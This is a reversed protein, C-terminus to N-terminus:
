VSPVLANGAAACNQVYIGVATCSCYLKSAPCCCANRLALTSQVDNTPALCANMVSCTACRIDPSSPSCAICGASRLRPPRWMVKLFQETSMAGRSGASFNDIFRVCNRELPVTTGGSTVCAIPVVLTGNSSTHRQVFAAILDVVSSSSGCPCDAFFEEVTAAPQAEAM